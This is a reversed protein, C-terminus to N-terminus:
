RRRTGRAPRPTWTAPRPLVKARARRLGGWRHMRVGAGGRGPAGRDERERDGHRREAQHRRDGLAPGSAVLDPARAVRQRRRGIREGGPEVGRPRGPGPLLQAARALGGAEHPGGPRTRIWVPGSRHRAPSAPQASASAVAPAPPQVSRAPATSAARSAGRPHAPPAARVAAAPRPNARSRRGAARRAGDDEQAQEGRDDRPDEGCSAPARRRRDRPRRRPRQRRAPRRGHATSPRPSQRRATRPRGRPTRARRRRELVGGLRAHLREAGRERRQRVGHRRARRGAPEDAVVRELAEHAAHRRAVRGLDLRGHADPQRRRTRHRARQGQAVARASSTSAHPTGPPRITATPSRVSCARRAATRRWTVPSPPM